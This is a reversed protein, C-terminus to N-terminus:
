EIPTEVVVTVTRSYARGEPLHVGYPSQEGLSRVDAGQLKLVRATENARRRSLELNYMDSGINDTFGSVTVTSAPRIRQAILDIIAANAGKIAADNFDFLILSFRDIEKDAIREIRKKRITMQQVGIQKAPPMLVSGARDELTLQYDVASESRPIATRDSTVDWTVFTPLTDRGHMSYLTRGDQRAEVKWTALGASAVSTLDFRVQQPTSTRLTDTTFVPRLIRSDSSTIEVRRNEEHALPIDAPDSARTPHEPLLRQQIRIRSTDIGCVDIFYARVTKARALALATGADRGTESTCGTLTLTAAPNDRMRRGVINLIHYYTELTGQAYLQEERFSQVSSPDLNRYRAPLTSSGEDFFIYNLLPRLDTAVIEEIRLTVDDILRGDDEIGHAEIDGGLFPRVPPPPPVTDPPPPPPAPPESIPSWGLALGFRLQHAKWSVGDAVGTLAHHYFIEPALFTTGRTNLPLVYRAGVAITARLTSAGPIDKSVDVWVRDSGLYAGYDAPEIMTETQHVSSTTVYALRGGVFLDLGGIARWGIMPELGISSLTADLDHRFLAEVVRASDRLDAVVTREDDSQRGGEGAYTLRLHLKWRDDLPLTGFAGLYFGNGSGGDFSPCCSPIDGLKRFSAVHSNRGYGGLIGLEPRAAPAQQGHASVLVTSTLVLASLITRLM